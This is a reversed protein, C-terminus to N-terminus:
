SLILCSIKVSSPLLTNILQCHKVNCSVVPQVNNIRVKDPSNDGHSTNITLTIPPVIGEQQYPTNMGAGGANEARGPTGGTSKSPSGDEDDEADDPDFKLMM